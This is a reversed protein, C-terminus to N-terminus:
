PPAPMLKRVINLTERLDSPRFGIRENREHRPMPMPITATMRAIAIPSPAFVIITLSIEDIPLLRMITNGSRRLRPGTDPPIPCPWVIVASSASAILRSSPCRTFLTLGWTLVM